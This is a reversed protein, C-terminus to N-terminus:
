GHQEKRASTKFVSVTDLLREAQAILMETATGSQEVLAVNQQTTGELHEIMSRVEGIQQTQLRCADNIEGMISTVNRSAVIVEEITQGAIQVMRGGESVRADSEKVLSKIEKAADASRQALIRVEGAVVAFGKGHGGAKAAEVAANLALINTQFAIADIASVIEGIRRSSADIGHMTEVVRGVADGGNGATLSAKNALEDAQNSNAANASVSSDFEGLANTAQELAAAQRSTRAGLDNTGDAIERSAQVVGGAAVRVQDVINTLSDRMAAVTAMVSSADDPRAPSPRSLDGDRIASAFAIMARPDAGLTRSIKRTVYWVVGFSLISAAAALGAMLIGFKVSIERAEDGETASLSEEYDIM